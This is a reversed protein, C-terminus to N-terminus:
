ALPGPLAVKGMVAAYHCVAAVVVLGRWIPQQYALREWLHFLMGVSYAYSSCGVM